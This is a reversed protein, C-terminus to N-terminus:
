PSGSPVFAVRFLRLDNACSRSLASAALAAFAAMPRRLVAQMCLDTAVALRATWGLVPGWRREVVVAMEDEDEVAVVVGVARGAVRTAVEAAVGAVSTM